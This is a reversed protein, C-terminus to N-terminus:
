GFLSAAKQAVAYVVSSSHCSFEFPLVGADVVRLNHTGYVRSISPNTTTPKFPFLAVSIPVQGLNTDVVGGLERPLMATSGMWHSAGSATEKYWTLYEADTGNPGLSPDYYANAVVDSFPASSFLRGARQAIVVAVQQDFEDTLLRPVIVQDEFPDYSKIHVYGRSLPLLPWYIASLM